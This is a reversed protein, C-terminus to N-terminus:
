RHAERLHIYLASDAESPFAHGDSTWGCDPDTCEISYDFSSHRTLTSM